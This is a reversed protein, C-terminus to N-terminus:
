ISKNKIMPSCNLYMFCWTKEFYKKSVKYKKVLIEVMLNHWWDHQKQTVAYTKYFKKVSNPKATGDKKSFRKDAELDKLIINFFEELWVNVLMGEHIDEKKTNKLLELSKNM